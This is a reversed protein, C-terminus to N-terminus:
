TRCGVVPTVSLADHPHHPPLAEALGQPFREGTTVLWRLTGGSVRAGRRWACEHALYQWMVPPGQLVTAGHRQIARVLVRTQAHINDPLVILSGGQSLALCFDLIGDIHLLWTRGVVVFEAASASGTIEDLM